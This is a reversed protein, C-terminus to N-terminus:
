SLAEVADNFANGRVEFNKYMDFSAFAPSLVVADGAQTYSQARAVIEQMNKSDILEFNDYDAETLSDAVRGGSAGILLVKRIDENHAVITAVLPELPLGREHGGIILVKPEKIAEIAAVGAGPATAFSDNYYSVDHVTRRLEIRFPLETVNMIGTRIMDADQVVQWAVTVAACVNQWNHEGRLPIDALKCIERGQITIADGSVLAGPEAFYPILKGSGNSAIRQSLENPAYFISVDEPHQWRFLQQKANLYDELDTHWDQHEPEIMLCVGIHPSQQLDILQFNALELVIYDDAKIDAQLMDLPPTGINGGLHVTFGAARLISTILTSTTGKGKTGTVGIINQSPSAKMFENTNSTVKELIAEDNAAVITAPHISPSRVLLHFRDLGRLYGAGLQAAVGDPLELAENRDCVTVTDGKAQWYRLASAGQSGFGLIAVNM